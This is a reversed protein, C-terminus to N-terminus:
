DEQLKLNESCYCSLDHVHLVMDVPYQDTRM